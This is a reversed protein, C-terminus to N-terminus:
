VATPTNNNQETKATNLVTEVSYIEKVFYYGILWYINRPTLVLAFMNKQLRDSHTKSDVLVACTM